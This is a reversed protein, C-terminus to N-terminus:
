FPFVSTLAFVDAVEINNELNINSRPNDSKLHWEQDDSGVNRQKPSLTSSTSISLMYNLYYKIVQLLLRFLIDLYM